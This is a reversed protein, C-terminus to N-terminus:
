QLATHCQICRKSAVVSAINGKCDCRPPNNPKRSSVNSHLPLTLDIYLGWEEQAESFSLRCRQEEDGGGVREM